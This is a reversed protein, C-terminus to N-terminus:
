PAGYAFPARSRSLEDEANERGESFEFAFEDGFAGERTQGGGPGAAAVTSSRVLHGGGFQPQRHGRHALGTVLNSFEATFKTDRALGQIPM